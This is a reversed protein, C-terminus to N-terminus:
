THTRPRWNRFVGCTTNTAMLGANWNCERQRFGPQPRRSCAHAFQVQGGDSYRWLEHVLNAYLVGWNAAAM